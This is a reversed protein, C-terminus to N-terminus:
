QFRFPFSEAADFQLHKSYSHSDSTVVGLNGSWSISDLCGSQQAARIYVAASFVSMSEFRSPGVSSERDRKGGCSKGSWKFLNCVLKFFGDTTSCINSEYRSHPDDRDWPQHPLWRSDHCEGYRNLRIAPENGHRVSFKAPSWGGLM